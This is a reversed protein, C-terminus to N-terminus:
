SGPAPSEQGIVPPGYWPTPNAAGGYGVPEPAGSGDVFIRWIDASPADGIGASPWAIMILATNPDAEFTVDEVYTGTDLGDVRSMQDLGTDAAGVYADSQSPYSGDASQPAGTWSGNWFAVNAGDSSWAFSGSAFAAGGIAQLDNFLPRGSAELPWSVAPDAADSIQPLGGAVFVWEGNGGIQDMTGMWFLARTGDASLLPMFLDDARPADGPGLLAGPARLEETWPRPAAHSVLLTSGGEVDAGSRFDAAYADGTTTIRAHGGTITNFIWADVTGSPQSSAACEEISSGLDTGALTYALQGGDSSWALRETFPWSASCGLGVTTGDTLHVARVEQAGTEGLRDIWALWEGTPSLAASIPPGSGADISISAGGTQDVFQLRRPLNTYGGSAVFYGIEGTGLAILPRPTPAATPSVEASASAVVSPTAAASPSASAVAVPTPRLNGLVVVALIGAVVTAAAAGSGVLLRPRRWWPARAFRGSEIGADIRAKLDRPPDVHRAGHVLRRQEEFAVLTERCTRCGALHAGLEKREETSLEETLSASLLEDPHEDRGRMTM